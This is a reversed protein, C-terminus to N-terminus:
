SSCSIVQQCTNNKIPLRKLYNIAEAGDQMPIDTITVNKRAREKEPTNYQNAELLNRSLHNIM